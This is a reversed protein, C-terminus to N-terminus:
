TRGSPYRSQSLVMGIKHQEGPMAKRTPKWVNTDMCMFTHCLQSSVTLAQHGPQSYHWVYKKLSGSSGTKHGQSSDTNPVSKSCLKRNLKGWISNPKKACGLQETIWALSPLWKLDESSSHVFSTACVCIIRIVWNGERNYSVLTM